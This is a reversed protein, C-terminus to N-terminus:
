LHSGYAAAAQQVPMLHQMRALADARAGDLVAEAGVDHVPAVRSLAGLRVVELRKCEILLRSLEVSRPARSDASDM